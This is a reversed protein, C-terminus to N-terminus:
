EFIEYYLKEVTKIEKESLASFENEIARKSLIGNNQSLFKVLLAVLSDPMEFEDDIIKKFEDYQTLYALESPIINEITDFVCDYLFEAQETSDYYRYYDITNNLVNVNHDKTKEWEIFELL